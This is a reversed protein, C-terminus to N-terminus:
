NGINKLLNVPSDGFVNGTGYSGDWKEIWQQKLIKDSLAREKLAYAEAEARAETIKIEANAKAKALENQVRMADQIATNKAEVAKVITAPYQIGSTLQELRFGEKELTSDLMTQVMHEFVARNSILSDTTFYNFQIRFADKVYSYITTALIQEIEKRYKVFIYPSRGDIVKISITPDVIFESGGNANVTFPEYDVTQVYTPFEYVSSTLPNYWVWGTVLAVDEVGKESATMNVKIGEHGADIRSCACGQTILFLGAVLMLQHLKKM